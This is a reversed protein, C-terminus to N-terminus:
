GNLLRSLDSRVLIQPNFLRSPIKAPRVSLYKIVTKSNRHLRDTLQMAVVATKGNRKGRIYRATKAMVGSRLYLDASLPFNDITALRLVIRQYSASASKAALSLVIVHTKTSESRITYNKTWSLTAIDGLSAQGLLKQMPTIRISRQSSPLFMWFNGDNMLMKEGADAASKFLVLAREGTGTYVVYKRTKTVKAGDFLDVQCDVRVSHTGTKFREADRLRSEWASHTTVKPAGINKASDAWAQDASLGLMIIAAVVIKYKLNM